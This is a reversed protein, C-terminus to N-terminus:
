THRPGLDSVTRAFARVLDNERDGRWVLAWRLRWSDRIPVYRIDPRSHYRVVHAGLVSVLDGAGVVTFLEELAKHPTADREIRRGCPTQFPAFGEEWHDPMGPVSPLVHNGLVEVSVSDQDALRHGPPVLLVMPESFVEPGVILNPDEIPLWAVLVDIDGNRLPGFADLYPNHHLQLRWEPHRANFTEWYPRLDYANAPLMGVRLVGSIGQATM